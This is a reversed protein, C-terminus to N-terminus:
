RVFASRRRLRATVLLGALISGALLGSAPEPAPGLTTMRPPGPMFPGGNISFESFIQLSGSVTYLIPPVFTSEVITTSGGSPNSPDQKVEFTNGNLTGMFDFTTLLTMFTGLPNVSPDRAVYTFQATGPALLHGLFTGPAGNNDAFVDAAYTASVLDLEDGNVVSHTIINFGSVIANQTCRNLASVCLGGLPYAGGLPPLIVTPQIVSSLKGRYQHYTDDGPLRGTDNNPKYRSDLSVEAITYESFNLRGLFYEEHLCAM